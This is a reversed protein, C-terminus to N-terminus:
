WKSKPPLCIENDIGRCTFLYFSIGVKSSHFLCGSVEAEPFASEWANHQATEFDCMVTRPRFNPMAAKIASLAVNYCDESKTQMLVRVLPIIQLISLNQIWHKCIFFAFLLIQWYVQLSSVHFRRVSLITWVQACDLAAPVSSFTADSMVDRMRSMYDMLRRSMFILVRTGQSTQGFKGLFISDTRDLTRTLYSYNDDQLVEALESLTHPIPPLTSSRARQMSPRLKVLNWHAAAVLPVRCSLFVYFIYAVIGFFLVNSILWETGFQWVENKKTCQPLNVKTVIYCIRQAQM